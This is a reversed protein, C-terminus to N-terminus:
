TSFFYQLHIVLQLYLVSVKNEINLIARFINVQMVFTGKNNGEWVTASYVSQTFKPPNDNQDSLHIWVTTYGYLPSGHINEATAEVTVGVKSGSEFDLGTSSAVRIMGSSPNIEFRGGENGSVLSYTIQQRRGDSRVASM